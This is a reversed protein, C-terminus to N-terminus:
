RQNNMCTSTVMYEEKSNYIGQVPFGFICTWTAWDIDKVTPGTVEKAKIINVFKLDYNSSNIVIHASDTGWDLHMLSGNLSINILIQKSLKSGEIEWIELHSASTHAGFAIKTSDPSFKIDQIWIM